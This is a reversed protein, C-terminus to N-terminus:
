YFLRSYDVIHEGSERICSTLVRQTLIIRSIMIYTRELLMHQVTELQTYTKDAQVSSTEDEEAWELLSEM